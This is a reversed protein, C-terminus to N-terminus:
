IPKSKYKNSTFKPEHKWPKGPKAVVEITPDISRFINIEKRAMAERDFGQLGGKGSGVAACNIMHRSCFLTDYGSQRLLLFQYFDEFTSVDKSPRFLQTRILYCTQIRKNVRSFLAETKAYFEFSYPFVVAGVKDIDFASLIRAMDNEVSGIGKVDDDVKFVLDYGRAEAYEKAYSTAYGLGLNNEPIVEVGPFPYLDAEQPEVFIKYEMKLRAMFPLVYRAVNSPRGKSPIIVLCRM